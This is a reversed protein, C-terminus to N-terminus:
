LDATLSRCVLVVHSGVPPSISFTHPVVDTVALWVDHSTRSLLHPHHQALAQVWKLAEM